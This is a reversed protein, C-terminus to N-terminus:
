RLQTLLTCPMLRLSKSYIAGRLGPLTREEAEIASLWLNLACLNEIYRYLERPTVKTIWMRRKTSMM